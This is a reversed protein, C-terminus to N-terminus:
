ASLQLVFGTNLKSAGLITNNSAWVLGTTYPNLPLSTIGQVSLIKDTGTALTRVILQQQEPAGSDSWAFVLRTGDPSFAATMARAHEAPTGAGSEATLPILTGRQMNMIAFPTGPFSYSMTAAYEILGTTGTAALAILVPYGLQKSQTGALQRLGTGDVNMQYVGNRRDGFEPHAITFFLTQGDTAPYIGGLYLLGPEKPDITAIEAATGGSAAVRMIHTGHFGHSAPSRTFFITKGDASWAPSTDINVTGGAMPTGGFILRDLSGSASDPTLDTVKGTAADMVWIDGDVFLRFADESFALKSGDPSWRVSSPEVGDPGQKSFTVCHVNKPHRVAAICLESEVQVAAWQGDPSFSLFKGKSLTYSRKGTIHLQGAAPTAQAAGAAAPLAILLVLSVLTLIALRRRHVSLTVEEPAAFDTM